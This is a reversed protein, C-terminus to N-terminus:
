KRDGGVAVVAAAALMGLAFGVLFAFGPDLMLGEGRGPLAGGVLARLPM